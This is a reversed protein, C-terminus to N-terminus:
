VICDLLVYSGSSSVVVNMSFLIPGQLAAILLFKASLRECLKLPM